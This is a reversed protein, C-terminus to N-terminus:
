LSLFNLYFLYRVSSKGVGVSSKKSFLDDGDDDDDFLFSKKPLTSKSFSKISKSFLEDQNDDFLDVTKKKQADTARSNTPVRHALTEKPKELVKSDSQTAANAESVQSSSKSVPSSSKVKSVSKAFLDVADDDDFLSRKGFSSRPMSKETLFNDFSEENDASSLKSPSKPASSSFLDVVKTKASVSKEFLSNPNPEQPPRKPVVDETKLTVEETEDSDVFLSPKPLKELKKQSSALLDALIDDEDDSEEFLKKIKESRPSRPRKPKETTSFIDEVVSASMKASEKTLPEETVSDISHSIDTRIDEQIVSEAVVEDVNKFPRRTPPRKKPLKARDQFFHM